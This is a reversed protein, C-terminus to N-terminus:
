RMWGRVFQLVRWGRWALKPIRALRRWPTKVLLTALGTIALPSRRLSNLLGLFAGTLQVPGEFRAYHYALEMRQLDSKAVLRARREALERFSPRM